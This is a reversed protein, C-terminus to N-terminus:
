ISIAAAIIINFLFAFMVAISFATVLMFYKVLTKILGQRYINKMAIILYVFVWLLALSEITNSNFLPTLIFQSLILMLFVFSFYHLSLVAHDVYFFNKHRIYLLKLILAFVPLLFFMMKPINHVVASELKELLSNGDKKGEQYLHLARSITYRKVFNDQQSKPLKNQTAIYQEASVHNDILSDLGAVGSVSLKVTSDKAALIVPENKDNLNFQNISDKLQSLLGAVSSDPQGTKDHVKESEFNNDHSNCSFMLFFYVVSTFIYLRIPHFQQHRKGSIYSNTLKGPLFLLPIVSKFFRSDWHIFDSVFEYLLEGFSEKHDHYKQGCFQCYPGHIKEECNPCLVNEHNHTSRFLM